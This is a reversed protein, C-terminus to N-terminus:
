RRCPTLAILSDGALVVDALANRNYYYSYHATIGSGLRVAGIPSTSGPEDGRSPLTLLAPTLTVIFALLGDIFRWM